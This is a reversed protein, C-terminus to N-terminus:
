YSYKVVAQASYGYKIDYVYPQLYLEYGDDLFPQLALTLPIGPIEKVLYYKIVRARM